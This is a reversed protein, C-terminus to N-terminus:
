RFIGKLKKGLNAFFGQVARRFEQKVSGQHIPCLRSPIQDGEKFYETYVPCTEVPKLYSVECLQVEQLGDPGGAVAERDGTLAPPHARRM